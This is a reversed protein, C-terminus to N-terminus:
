AHPHNLNNQKYIKVLDNMSWKFFYKEDRLFYIVIGCLFMFWSLFSAVAFVKMQSTNPKLSLCYKEEIEYFSATMRGFSLACGFLYTIIFLYSVHCHCHNM